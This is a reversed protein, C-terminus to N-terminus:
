RSLQLGHLIKTTTTIQGAHRQAHEAAHFLLGVVTTPLKARGVERPALLASVDTRKIQLLANEIAHRVGGILESATAPPSEAEKEVALAAKQTETLSEGRAYTLLRDTSGAIHKLHFGISGAGGVELWLQSLTLAAAMREVEEAVQLFVHAAPMLLPEVGEIPGRLWVEPLGSTSM